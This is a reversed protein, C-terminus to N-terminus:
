GYTPAVIMWLALFVLFLSPERVVLGSAVASLLVAGMGYAVTLYRQTPMLRDVLQGAGLPVLVSGIAMTAFIWGRSQNQLGLDHLHVPLLPWFSGQVSYVLAMMMSLRWRGHTESMRVECAQFDWAELLPNWQLVVPQWPGIGHCQDGRPCWGERMVRFLPD